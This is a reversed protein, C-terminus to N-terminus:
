VRVGRWATCPSATSRERPRRDFVRARARARVLVVVVVSRRVSRWPIGEDAYARQELAFVFDTFVKQMRENTYNILLQEFSNRELVKPISEPNPLHMNWSEARTSRTLGVAFRADSDSLAVRRM